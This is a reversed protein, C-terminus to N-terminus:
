FDWDNQLKDEMIKLIESPKKGLGKALRFFTTLQPDKRGEMIYHVVSRPVDSEYALISKKKNASLDKVLSGLTKLIIENEKIKYEQM